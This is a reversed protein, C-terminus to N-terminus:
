RGLEGEDWVENHGWHKGRGSGSLLMAGAHTFMAGSSVRAGISAGAGPQAVAAEGLTLKKGSLLKGWSAWDVKEFSTLERRQHNVRSFSFLGALWGFVGGRGFLSHHGLLVASELVASVCECYCYRLDWGTRTGAERAPVRAADDQLPPRRNVRGEARLNLFLIYNECLIVAALKHRSCIM